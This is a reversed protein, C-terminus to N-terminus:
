TQLNIYQKKFNNKYKRLLNEEVSVIKTLFNSKETSMYAQIEDMLVEECYGFEKLRCKLAKLNKNGISKTIIDMSNKYIKDTYYLAHALEHKFTNSKISKVGILYSGKSNQKKCIKNLIKNMEIDYPTEVKSIKKCKLAVSLPVNFGSWDSTYTFNGGKLSSYWEKYDWFSFKKGKFKRNKSEYFEQIRLFLMARIYDDPIIFVFVKPFLETIKYEINPM